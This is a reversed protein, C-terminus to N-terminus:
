SITFYFPKTIVTDGVLNYKAILRYTGTLGGFNAVQPHTALKTTDFKFLITNDSTIDITSSTNSFGSVEVTAPLTTSDENVKEIKIQANTLASDKFLNKISDDIDRNQITIDTTIKLTEISSLTLRKNLLTNNTTFIIPQTVSFFTDEYLSFDNIFTQYNSGDAFKVTWCDIFDGTVADDSTYNITVSSGHLTYIGAIDPRLVCVYQGVGTRYVGSAALRSVPGTGQGVFKYGSPDQAPFGGDQGSPNYHMIIQSSTISTSILNEDVVSNPNFNDSKSFVTVGSIEYPDYYEGDNIFFARLAVRQIVTPRNHRDVLDVGNLQM